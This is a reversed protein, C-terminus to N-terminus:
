ILCGRHNLSLVKSFKLGATGPHLAREIGCLFVGGTWPAPHNDKAVIACCFGGPPPVAVLQEVIVVAYQERDHGVEIV